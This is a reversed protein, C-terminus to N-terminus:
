PKPKPRRSRMVLTNEARQNRSAQDALRIAKGSRTKPDLTALTDPDLEDPGLDSPKRLDLKYYREITKRTGDDIDLSKCAAYLSPLWDASKGVSRMEKMRALVLKYTRYSEATPIHNTNTGFGRLEMPAADAVLQAYHRCAAIAWEPINGPAAKGIAIVAYRIDNTEEFHERAREFATIALGASPETKNAAM